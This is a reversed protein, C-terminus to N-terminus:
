KLVAVRYNTCCTFIKRLREVGIMKTSHKKRLDLIRTMNAKTASLLTVSTLKESFHLYNQQSFSHGMEWSWKGYTQWNLPISTQYFCICKLKKTIHQWGNQAYQCLNCFHMKELKFHPKLCQKTSKSNETNKKLFFLFFLTVQNAKLGKAGVYWVNSM